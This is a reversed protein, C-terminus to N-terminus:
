NTKGNYKKLKKNLTKTYRIAKTNIKSIDNKFSLIQPEKEYIENWYKQDKFYRESNIYQKESEIYKFYSYYNEDTIEIKNTLKNYLDIIETSVLSM